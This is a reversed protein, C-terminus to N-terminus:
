ISRLHDLNQRSTASQQRCDPNLDLAGIDYCLRDPMEGSHNSNLSTLLGRTFVAATAIVCHLTSNLSISNTTTTNLLKTM